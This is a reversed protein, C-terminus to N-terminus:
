GRGPSHKTAGRRRRERDDPERPHNRKVPERSQDTRDTNRAGDRATLEELAPCPDEAVVLVRSGAKLALEVRRAAAQGGGVVLIQRDKVEMFLPLHNM